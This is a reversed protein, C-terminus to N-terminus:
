VARVDAVSRRGAGDIRAWAPREFLFRGIRLHSVGAHLLLPVAVALATVILAVTGLDSIMGTKLLVTRTVVMPLFFALYIAM